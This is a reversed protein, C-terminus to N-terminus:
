QYDTMGVAFCNEKLPFIRVLRCFLDGRFNNLWTTVNFGQLHSVDLKEKCYQGLDFKLALLIFSIIM